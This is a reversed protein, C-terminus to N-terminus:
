PGIQRLVSFGGIALHREPLMVPWFAMVVSDALNPSKTGEPNKDVILKLTTSKRSATAQSLEKQLKRILPIVSPLIILEDPDLAGTLQNNVAQWTVEFRRALMWWAQAKLNQFFDRNRPSKKDGAIVFEAPFNVKASAMWPQMRLGRPMLKDDVLRNTEGKVGSGVGVADYQLELPTFLECTSVARRATVSTDREGWEELHKLLPGKRVALANSDAGTDAVDLGATTQGGLKDLDLNLKLHADIAAEVWDANIIIGEAAAL